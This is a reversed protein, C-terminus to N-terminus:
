ADKGLITKFWDETNFGYKALSLEINVSETDINYISRFKDQWKDGNGTDILDGFLLWIVFCAGWYIGLLTWYEKSIVFEKGGPLLLLIGSVILLLITTGAM